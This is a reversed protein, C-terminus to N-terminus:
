GEVDGPLNSLQRLALRRSWQWWRPRPESLRLVADTLEHVTVAVSAISSVASDAFEVGQDVTATLDHIENGLDALRDQVAKGTVSVHQALQQVAYPTRALTELAAAIRDLNANVALQDVVGLVAHATAAQVAYMATAANDGKRLAYRPQEDFMSSNEYFRDKNAADALLAKAQEVRAEREAEAPTAFPDTATM